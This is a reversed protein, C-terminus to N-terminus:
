CCWYAICFIATALGVQASPHSPALGSRTFFPLLTLDHQGALALIQFAQWDPQDGTEVPRWWPTQSTRTLELFLQLGKQFLSAHALSQLRVITMKGEIYHKSAAWGKCPDQISISHGLTSTDTYSTSLLSRCICDTATPNTLRMRVAAQLVAPAIQDISQQAQAGLLVCAM